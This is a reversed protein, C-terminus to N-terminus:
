TRPRGIRQHTIGRNVEDAKDGFEVGFRVGLRRAEIAMLNAKLRNALEIDGAKAALRLRRRLERRREKDERPIRRLRRAM